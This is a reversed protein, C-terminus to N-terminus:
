FARAARSLEYTQGAGLDDNAIDQVVMDLSASHINPQGALARISDENFNNGSVVSKKLISSRSFYQNGPGSSGRPDIQESTQLQEGLQLTRQIDMGETVDDIQFSDAEAQRYEDTCTKGAKRLTRARERAILAKMRSHKVHSTHESTLKYVKEMDRELEDSKSESVFKVREREILDNMDKQKKGDQIANIGTDYGADVPKQIPRNSTPNLIKLNVVATQFKSQEEAQKRQADNFFADVAAKVEGRRNAYRPLKSIEVILENAQTVNALKKIEAPSLCVGMFAQEGSACEHLAPAPLSAPPSAPMPRDDVEDPVETVEIVTPPSLVPPDAVSAAVASMEEGDGESKKGFRKVAFVIVLVLVLACIVGLLKFKHKKVLDVPTANSMEDDARTM